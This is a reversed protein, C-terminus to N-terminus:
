LCKKRIQKAKELEKRPTKQTKKVFGNTLIVRKNIMFFYLVRVTNNDQRCRLEFIGDELYKSHPERLEYGYDELLGITRFILSQMKDNQALIFEEVPRRGNEEYFEVEFRM